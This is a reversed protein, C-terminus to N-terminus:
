SVEGTNLNIVRNEREYVHYKYEGIPKLIEDELVSNITYNLTTITSKKSAKKPNFDFIHNKQLVDIIFESKIPISTSKDFCITAIIKYKGLIFIKDEILESCRVEYNSIKDTFNKVSSIEGIFRLYTEIFFNDSIDTKYPKTIGLEVTKCESYDNNCIFNEDIWFKEKDIEVETKNVINVKTTYNPYILRSASDSADYIIRNSIDGKEIIRGFSSSTGNSDEILINISSYRVNELKPKISENFYIEGERKSFSSNLQYIPLFYVLLLVILFFLSIFIIKKKGM